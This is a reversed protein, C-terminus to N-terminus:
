TFVLAPHGSQALKQGEPSQKNKATKKILVKPV